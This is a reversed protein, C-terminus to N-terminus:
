WHKAMPHLVSNWLPLPRKKLIHEKNKKVSKFTKAAINEKKFPVIVCPTKKGAMKYDVFIIAGKCKKFIAPKIHTKKYQAIKLEKLENFDFEKDAM